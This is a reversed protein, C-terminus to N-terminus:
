CYDFIRGLVGKIILGFYFQEANFYLLIITDQILKETDEDYNEAEQKSDIGPIQIVTIISPPYALICLETERLIM